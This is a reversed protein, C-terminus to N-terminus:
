FLYLKKALLNLGNCDEKKKELPDNVLVWTRQVLKSKSNHMKFLAM